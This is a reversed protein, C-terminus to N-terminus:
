QLPSSITTTLIPCTRRLFCTDRLSEARAMPLAITLLPIHTTSLRHSGTYQCQLGTEDLQLHDNFAAIDVSMRIPHDGSLAGCREIYNFLKAPFPVLQQIFIRNFVLNRWLHSDNLIIAKWLRCVFLAGGLGLPGDVVDLYHFIQFLLETPLTDNNSQM